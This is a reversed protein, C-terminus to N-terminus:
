TGPPRGVLQGPTCGFARRVHATLHSQSAFGVAVAVEAIVGGARLLERAREVRRRIVYQHPTVGTSAKFLRAFHFRSRGVVSALRDLTLPTDLNRTIHRDLRALEDDPLRAVTKHPGPGSTYERSLHVGLATALSSAFLEGGASGERGVEDALSTVVRQVFSDKRMIAPAAENLNVRGPDGAARSFFTPSLCLLISEYAKECRVATTVHAPCFFVDGAAPRVPCCKGDGYSWSSSGPSSLLVTVSHYDHTHLGFGEGASRVGRQVAVGEALRTATMPTPLTEGKMDRVTKVLTKLNGAPRAL